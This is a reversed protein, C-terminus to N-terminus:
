IYAIIARKCYLITIGVLNHFLSNNLRLLTRGIRRICIYTKINETAIAALNQCPYPCIM